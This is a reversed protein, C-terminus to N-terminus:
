AERTRVYQAEMIAILFWLGLSLPVFFFHFLTAVAFPLESLMLADMIVEGGNTRPEGYSAAKPLRNAVITRSEVFPRDGSTRMYPAEPGIM